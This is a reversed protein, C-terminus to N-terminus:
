CQCDGCVFWNWKVILLIVELIVNNNLLTQNTHNCYISFFLIQVWSSYPRYSGECSISLLQFQDYILFLKGIIMNFYNNNAVFLSAFKLKSDHPQLFKVLTTNNGKAKAFYFWKSAKGIKLCASTTYKSLWHASSPLSCNIWSSTGFNINIKRTIKSKRNAVLEAKFDTKVASFM